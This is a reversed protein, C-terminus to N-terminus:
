MPTFLRFRVYVRARRGTPVSDAFLAELSSYSAGGAAGWLGLAVGLLVVRHSRFFLAFVTGACAFLTVLAACRLVFARSVRDAVVGAPIGGLLAAVGRVGEIIGVDVTSDGATFYIM